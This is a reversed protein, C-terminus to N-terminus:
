IYRTKNFFLIYYVFLLLHVTKKNYKCVKIQEAGAGHSGLRHESDCLLRCILDRAEPTLRAGEPFVLHTRWSV